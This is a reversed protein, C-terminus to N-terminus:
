ELGAVRGNVMELVIQSSPNPLKVKLTRKKHSDSSVKALWKDANM